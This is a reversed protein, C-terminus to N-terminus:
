GALDWRVRRLGPVANFHSDRTALTLEHQGALAAIWLDNEPIPVGVSRLTLKQEGYVVATGADIPLVSTASAFTMVRAVNSAARASKRAGYLLEGLVISPIFVAQARKLAALVTEEGAFLAIVMNTDLLVRVSADGSGGSM